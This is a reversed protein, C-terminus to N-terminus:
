LQSELQTKFRAMALNYITELKVRNSNITNGIDNGMINILVQGALNAANALVVTSKQIDIDHLATSM